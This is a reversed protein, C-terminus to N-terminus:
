DDDEDDSTEVIRFINQCTEDTMCLCAETCPIYNAKCQCLDDRKCASRNCKCITLELLSAPAPDKTMLTPLLKGNEIAWGNTEPSLLEQHKCLSKKWAYAQYNKGRLITHCVIAPPLCAKTRRIVIWGRTKSDLNVTKELAMGTWVQSFPQESRSVAHNGKEFEEHVEPVQTPLLSMDAICTYVPLWRHFFCCFSMIDGCVDEVVSDPSAYGSPWINRM